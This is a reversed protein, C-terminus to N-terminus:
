AAAKRRIAILSFLGLVGALAILGWQSLSPVNRSASPDICIGVQSCSGGVPEGGSVICFASSFDPSIPQCCDGVIGNRLCIDSLFQCCTAEGNQAFGKEAFAIFMIFIILVALLFNFSKSM